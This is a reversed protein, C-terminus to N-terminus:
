LLNKATSIVTKLAKVRAYWKENSEIVTWPAIETSTRALMDDVAKDYQDWKGRNRWDEDTIKYVKLPDSARQEFRQLQEERSIELWFKVIGGGSSDIFDEEMENM